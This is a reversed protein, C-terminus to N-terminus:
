AVVNRQYEGLELLSRVEPDLRPLMSVGVDAFAAIGQVSGRRGYLRAAEVLAAQDARPAWVGGVAGRAFDFLLRDNGGPPAALDGLGTATVDLRVWTTLDVAPGTLQYSHWDGSTTTSRIALVDDTLLGALEARRDIGDDDTTSIALQDDAASARFHRIGPDAIVTATAFQWLASFVSTAPLATAEVTLDPRLVAVLDNAAAVAMTM